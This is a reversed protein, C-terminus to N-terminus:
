WYTDTQVALILMEHKKIAEINGKTSLKQAISMVKHKYKTIEGHKLAECEITYMLYDFQEGLEDDDMTMLLPAVQEELLRVDEDTVVEFASAECYTRIYKIKMRANFSNQEIARMATLVLSILSERYEIYDHTQYSRAQLAQIIQIRCNFINETLSQSPQQDKENKNEKFYEFNGCYDFIRFSDKDKGKGFLDKCPRTGRGIMQWFKEKSQVKKFFVLNVIEPIDVGTDLMDVTIAIQPYKEKTKFSEITEAIHKIGEYFVRAFNGQINPYLKNFRNMMLNAHEKSNAFIITKGLKNNHGAKIGKAMVEQLVRDITDTNLLFENLADSNTEIVDDEFTAEFAEKAEESLADYHNGREIFKLRTEVTHYPVLYGDDIADALEYAYTTQNEKLEFMEYTKKDIDSKPIATLGL